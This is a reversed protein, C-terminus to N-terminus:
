ARGRRRHLRRACGKLSEFLARSKSKKTLRGVDLLLSEAEEFQGAEVLAAAEEVMEDKESTLGSAGGPAGAGADPAAKADDSDAGKTGAGTAPAKKGAKPLKKGAPM